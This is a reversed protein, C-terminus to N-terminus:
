PGPPHGFSERAQQWLLQLRHWTEPGSRRAAFLEGHCFGDQGRVRLWALRPLVWTGTLLRAQRREGNGGLLTVNGDSDLAIGTVGSANRYMHWGQWLCDLLWILALCYRWFPSIQTVCILVVGALM